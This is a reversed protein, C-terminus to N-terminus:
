TGNRTGGSWSSRGSEAEGVKGGGGDGDLADHFDDEPSNQRDNEPVDDEPLMEKIKYHGWALTDTQGPILFRKDDNSSLAVKEQRETTVVHLKSRITNQHVKVIEENFLCNLYDQFCLRKKVVRSKVGKAKKIPNKGKIRLSYAKSRVAAYELLVEGALEDSFKGPIKKNVRPM